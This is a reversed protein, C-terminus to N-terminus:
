FNQDDLEPRRATSASGRASVRISVAKKKKRVAGTGPSLCLMQFCCPPMIPIASLSQVVPFKQMALRCKGLRGLRM